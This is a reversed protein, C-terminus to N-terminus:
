QQQPKGWVILMRIIDESSVLRLPEGHISECDVYARQVGIIAGYPTLNRITNPNVQIFAKKGFLSVRGSWQLRPNMEGGHERRENKGMLIVNVPVTPELVTM